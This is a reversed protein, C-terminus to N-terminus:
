QNAYQDAGHFHLSVYPGDGVVWSARGPPGSPIHFRMGARLEDITPVEMAATPCGSLVAGVHEVHGRTAGVRPGAHLSCKWGPQYTARGITMSGIRVLEFTGTELTRVEDPEEFGKLVTDIM